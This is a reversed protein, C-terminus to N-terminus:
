EHANFEYGGSLKAAFSSTPDATRVSIIGGPSNKGFFLAQPGKLVEVQQIDMESMRRVSARAVQVGDINFSVAQDGFPNADAGAIGRIAIIGGQVTGGGEGVILQPVIRAIGDLNNIARREIEAGGVATLAVPVAISTEDRKRATVVIDSDVSGTDSAAPAPAGDQAVANEAALISLGASM